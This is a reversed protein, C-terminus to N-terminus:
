HVSKRKGSIYQANNNYITRNHFVISGNGYRFLNIYVGVGNAKVSLTINNYITRNQFEISCGEKNSDIYVGGGASHGNNYYLTYYHLENNSNRYSLIFM